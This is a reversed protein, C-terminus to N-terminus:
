VMLAPEGETAQAIRFTEEPRQFLEGDTQGLRAPEGIVVMVGCIVELRQDLKCFLGMWFFWRDNAEETCSLIEGLNSDIGQSAKGKPRHLNLQHDSTTPLPQLISQLRKGM